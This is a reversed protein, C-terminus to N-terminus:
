IEAVITRKQCRRAQAYTDEKEDIAVYTTNEKKKMSESIDEHMTEPLATGARLHRRRRENMNTHENRFIM